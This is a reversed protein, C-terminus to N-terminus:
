DLEVGGLHDPMDLGHADQVSPIDLPSDLQGHSDTTSEEVGSDTEPPTLLGSQVPIPGPRSLSTRKLMCTEVAIGPGFACGVIYDKILGHPALAHMDKHRMRDMVSFITASSSNGHNMYTDYSARMHEPTIGMTREIGTLITAGGPHIAWDFDGPQQYSHPLEPLTALLDQFAQPVAAEALKPVRPTLVVKWGSSDADAGLILM